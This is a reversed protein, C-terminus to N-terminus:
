NKFGDCRKKLQNVKAQADTWSVNNVKTEQHVAHWARWNFFYNFAMGLLLSAAIALFWPKKSRILRQKLIEPPLLNTKLKSAGLGQLVLGYAVPFSLTNEKFLSEGVVNDGTMREFEDVRIVKRDLNKELYQTLGPLKAANGVIITRVLEADRDLSEFYGVTRQIETVLDNFTPRMARFVEKADAADRANRKIHEAKAFTLKMEKTLQKTFHNGGIPISRQWVRFGNTIVLDSTDTGLSIVVTWHNPDVEEDESSLPFQDFAVANYIAIPTLQVIDLEVEADVLPQILRLVQDRKMAFLGVVNEAPMDDDDDDSALVDPMKQYDWVVDELAFPIQQKAEFGVLEPLKKPEVPPLDIFRALGSQGAVSICVKDGRLSNRSLLQKLAERVLEGPDADPQSLIKPYEIYEFSEAVVTKGDSSMRGRLAKLGCQGIDIGWVAGGAAM